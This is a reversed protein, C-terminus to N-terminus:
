FIISNFRNAITFVDIRIAKLKLIGPGLNFSLARALLVWRGASVVVNVVGDFHHRIASGTETTFGAILSFEPLYENAVRSKSCGNMSLIM